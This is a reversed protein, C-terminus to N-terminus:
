ALASSGALDADSRTNTARGHDAASDTGYASLISDAGTFSDEGAM